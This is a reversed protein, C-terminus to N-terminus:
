DSWEGQWLKAKSEDIILKQPNEDEKEIKYSYIWSVMEDKRISSVTTNCSEILVETKSLLNWEKSFELMLYGKEQGAGCMGQVYARSGYKFHLLLRHGKTTEVLGKVEFGQASGGISCLDLTKDESVKLFEYNRLVALDKENVIAKLTVRPTKVVNNEPAYPDLEWKQSYNGKNKLEKLVEFHNSASSTTFTLISDADAANDGFSYITLGGDYIGVVPVQIPNDGLTFWGKVSYVNVHDDSHNAYDLYMTFALDRNNAGELYGSIFKNSVQHKIVKEQALGCLSISILIVILINKM